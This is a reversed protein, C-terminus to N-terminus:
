STFKVRYRAVPAWLPLLRVATPTGKVKSDSPPPHDVGSGPRKVRLFSGTSVTYSGLVPTSTHPLDPVGVPIRDWSCGARPLENAKGVSSDREVYM